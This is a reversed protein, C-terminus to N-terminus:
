ARSNNRAMLRAQSVDVVAVIPCSSAIAPSWFQIELPDVWSTQQHQGPRLRSDSHQVLPRYRGMRMVRPSM